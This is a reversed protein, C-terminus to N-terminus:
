CSCILSVCSCGPLRVRANIVKIDLSTGVFEPDLWKTGPYLAASLGTIWYLSGVIAASLMSDKVLARSSLMSSFLPRWTFYLTTLGLVAGMSMTQGNHFKAHPAWNKNFVHTENYDAIYCSISTSLGVLTLCVRGATLYPTTSM